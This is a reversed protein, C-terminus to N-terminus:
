SCDLLTPVEEGLHELNVWGLPDCYVSSEVMGVDVDPEVGRFDVRHAICLLNTRCLIKPINYILLLKSHSRVQVDASNTLHTPEFGAWSPLFFLSHVFSLKRRLTCPKFSIGREREREVCVDVCERAYACVCCM